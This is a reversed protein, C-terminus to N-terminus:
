FSHLTILFSKILKLYTGPKIKNKSTINRSECYLFGRRVMLICKVIQSNFSPSSTKSFKSPLHFKQFNIAKSMTKLMVNAEPHMTTTQMPFYIQYLACCMKPLQHARLFTLQYLQLQYIHSEFSVAKDFHKASGHKNVPKSFTYLNRSISILIM